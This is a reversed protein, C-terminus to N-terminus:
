ATPTAGCGDFLVAAPDSVDALKYITVEGEHFAARVLTGPAAHAAPFFRERHGCYLYDAPYTALVNQESLLEAYRAPWRQARMEFREEHEIEFSFTFFALADELRRELQANTGSNDTFPFGGAANEIDLRQFVTDDAYGFAAQVRLMREALEDDTAKSFGGDALRGLCCAM